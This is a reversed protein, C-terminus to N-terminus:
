PEEVAITVLNSTTIGGISLQLPVVGAKVQPVAVNIQNLGVFQPSLGSFQVDAAVGGIMVTPTTVTNRLTDSSNDGDVAEPTVLGLGTALIVLAEGVRAPHVASGPISGEPGALSGDPNIAIAQGTGSHTTFVGPSVPGIPAPFAALATGNATVVIDATSGAVEWPVQLNIQKSSVFLLPADFGGITVSVDGLKTPLPIASAYVNSSAFGTGFVSALSGATLPESAVFSAGNAAGTTAAIVTTNLAVSAWTAMDPKGDGNFDAVVLTPFEVGIDIPLMQFTGDGNSLYFLVLSGDRQALDMKGDGNIDLAVLKTGLVGKPTTPQQFTGDGNGLSVVLQDGIQYQLGVAVIDLKGDGTLDVALIPPVQVIGFPLLAPAQFSGDGQNVLIYIGASALRNQSTFVIDPTRAGTFDAVLNFIPVASAAAPLPSPASFSGGPQGLMVALGVNFGNSGGGDLLLDPIGDGNIDAAAEVYYPLKTAVTSPAGLTGDAGALMVTINSSSMEVRSFETNVTLLPGYANFVIDTRGDGNVDVAVINGLNFPTINRDFFVSGIWTVLPAQFTGDGNGLLVSIEATPPTSTTDECVVALDPKNDGNFDGTLVNSEATGNTCATPLPIVQFSPTFSSTQAGASVQALILTILWWLGM